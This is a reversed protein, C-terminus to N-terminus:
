RRPSRAGSSARARPQRRAGRVLGLLARRRPLVAGRRPRLGAPGRRGAALERDRAGAAGDRPPRDPAGARCRRRVRAGGRGAAFHRARPAAVHDRLAGAVAQGARGLHRHPHAELRRREGDRRVTADRAAWSWACTSRTRRRRACGSTTFAPRRGGPQPRAARGPVRHVVTRRSGAAGGVGAALQYGGRRDSACPTPARHDPCQM